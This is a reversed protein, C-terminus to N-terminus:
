SMTATLVGRFAAMRARAQPKTTRFLGAITDFVKSAAPHKLLKSHRMVIGLPIKSPNINFLEGEPTEFVLPHVDELGDFRKGYRLNM